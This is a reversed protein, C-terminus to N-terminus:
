NCLNLANQLVKVFDDGNRSFVKVKKHNQISNQTFKAKEIKDQILLINKENGTSLDKLKTTDRILFKPRLFRYKENVQEKISPIPDILILLQDKTVRHSAVIAGVGRGALILNPNIQQACELIAKSDDLFTQQSARGKNGASGRYNFAIVEFDLTNTSALFQAADEESDPYYLISKKSQHKSKWGNLITKDPLVCHIPISTSEIHKRSEQHTIARPYAQQRETLMLYFVMSFYVLVLIGLIRLLRFLTSKLFLM